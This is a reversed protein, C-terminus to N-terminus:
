LSPFPLEELCDCRTITLGLEPNGEGEMEGSGSIVPSHEAVTVTIGVAVCFQAPLM